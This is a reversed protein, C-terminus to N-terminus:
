LGHGMWTHAFRGHSVNRATRERLLDTDFPYFLRAAHSTIFNDSESSTREPPAPSFVYPAATEKVPCFGAIGGVFTHADEAQRDPWYLM